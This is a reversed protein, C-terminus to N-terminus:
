ADLTWDFRSRGLYEVIVANRSAGPMAVEIEELVAETQARTPSASGVRDHCRGCVLDLNDPDHNAANGDRHYREFADM